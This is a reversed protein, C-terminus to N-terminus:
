LLRGCSYRFFWWFKIIVEIRGEWIASPHRSKQGVSMQEVSMQGVSMQGVQCKDWWSMEGVAVNTGGITLIHCKHWWYCLMVNTGGILFLSMQAVKILIPLNQPTPLPPWPTFGRNPFSLWGTKTPWSLLIKTGLHPPVFTTTACIDHHSFHWTPSINHHCLHRM